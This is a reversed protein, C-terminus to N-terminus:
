YVIQMPLGAADRPPDPPLTEATGAAIRHSSWLLAIADLIDDDAVDSKRWAGRARTLIGAGLWHEALALRERQGERTKKAALTRGGSWAWFSVEPHVERLAARAAPNSALALDVERIKPLIGWAQVSVRRGDVRATLESAEAQSRAALAARVPAPFVSSRRPGLCRRAALDCARAGADPLGIPIDLAVVEPRPPQLVIHEVTDAVGFLLQGSGTERCM